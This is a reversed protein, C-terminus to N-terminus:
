GDKAQGGTALSEFAAKQLELTKITMDIFGLNMRLWSEVTRLEAIKKEIERPDITPAMVGPFPFSMPNWMKQMFEFLDKPLDQEAM